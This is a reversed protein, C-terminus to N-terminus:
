NFMCNYSFESMNIVYYSCMNKEYWSMFDANEFM